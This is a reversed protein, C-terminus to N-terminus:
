ILRQQSLFSGYYMNLSDFYQLAYSSPQTGNYMPTEVEIGPKISSVIALFANGDRWSRGFDNVAIGFTRTV